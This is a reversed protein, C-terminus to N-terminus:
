LELKMKILCEEIYKEPNDIFRGSVKFMSFFDKVEYGGEAIEKSSPLYGFVNNIYGVPIVRQGQWIKEVIKKYCILVEASIFVFVFKDSIRLYKLSLNDIGEVTIGINSISYQYEGSSICVNQILVGENQFVSEFKDSLNAVWNQYENWKFRYLVTPYSQLFLTYITRLIISRKPPFARIDGSFGQLFLIPIHEYGSKCRFNNRVIGPFESSIYENEPLNTPHCTYHWIISEVKLTDTNTIKIIVLNEDKTGSLNPEMVVEKKFGKRFSRITRRRNATLNLTCGEGISISYPFPQATTTKQILTLLKLKLFEFYREDMKGLDHRVDELSPAYHTHSACVTLDSSSINPFTQKFIELIYSYLPAVIFLTDISLMIKVENEIFVILNAELGCHINKIKQTRSSFGSLRVDFDPTIDITGRLAKPTAKNM